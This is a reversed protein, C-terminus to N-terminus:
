HVQRAVNNQAQDLQQWTPCAIIFCVGQSIDSKAGIRGGMQHIMERARTLGLGTGSGPPKTTFFPDFINDLHEAPIGPGNNAFVIVLGEKEAHISLTQTFEEGDGQWQQRVDKANRLIESIVLRIARVNGGIRTARDAELAIRTPLEMDQSIDSVADIFTGIDVFQGPLVRVDTSALQRLIVQIRASGEDVLTLSQRTRAIDDNVLQTLEPEDELLSNLWADLRVLGSDAQQMSIDIGHIAPLFRSTMSETLAALSRNKSNELLRSQTAALEESRRQIEAELTELNLRSAEDIKQQMDRSKEILAIVLLFCEFLSAIQVINTTFANSPLLGFGRLSFVLTGLILGSWAIILLRANKNGQFLSIVSNVLMNIISLVCATVGSQVSIFIHGTLTCIISFLAVSFVVLRREHQLPVARTEKGFLFFETFLTSTIAAIAVSLSFAVNDARPYDGAWFFQRGLGSFGLAIMVMSAAFLCYLMNVTDHIRLYVVLNFFLMASMFGFYITYVWTDSTNLKMFERSDMLRIPMVIALESQVRLYVEYPQATNVPMEFAHTRYPVQRDSVPIWGGGRAHNITGDQLVVWTEIQNLIADNILLYWLSGSTDNVQLRLRFWWASSSFGRNPEDTTSSVWDTRGRVMALSLQGHHDELMELHRGISINRVSGDMLLPGAHVTGAMAVLALLLLYQAWTWCNKRSPPLACFGAGSM